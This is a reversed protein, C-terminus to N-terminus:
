KHKKKTVHKKSTAKKAPPPAADPPPAEGAGADSPPASTAAAAAADAPATTVPAPASGADLKAAVQQPPAQQAAPKGDESSGPWMLYAGAGIAGVGLVGVIVWRARSRRKPAPAFEDAGVVTGRWAISQDNDAPGRRPKQASVELMQSPSLPQTREGQDGM